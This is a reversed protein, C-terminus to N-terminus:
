SDSPPLEFVIISTAQEGAAVLAESVWEVSRKAVRALFTRLAATTL